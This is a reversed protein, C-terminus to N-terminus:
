CKSLLRISCALQLLGLSAELTKSWCTKLGRYWSLIGFSQEVIWRNPINFKHFGKKRRRNPSAILVFNKEQM